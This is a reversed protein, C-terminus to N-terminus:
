RYKPPLQVEVGGFGGRGHRRVAYRADRVFMRRGDVEYWPFRVWTMFGRISPDREAAQWEPSSQDAVPIRLDDLALGSRWSYRGFRYVDGTQAVVAWSTPDIPHPAAMVNRSALEREVHTEAAEHIVLRTVIYAAALAVAANPIWTVRPRGLLAILLVLAVAAVVPLYVMARGAVVYVLMATCVAWIGVTVRTARRPALWGAGLILWLWPDMIYVSDGYSWTGRFPMLWRMGYNNLWDLFPHTLIAGASLALLWGAHVRKQPDPRLRDYLLLLATQLFPLVVLALVGHTWGRRFGLALDDHGTFYLISDVDPLNAGIVLAATALRTTERLRTSALNAGLLTHTLPDM